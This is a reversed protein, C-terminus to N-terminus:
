NGTVIGMGNQQPLLIIAINWDNLKKIWHKARINQSACGSGLIELHDTM